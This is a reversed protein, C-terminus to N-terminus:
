SLKRRLLLVMGALSLLALSGPEPIASTGTVQINDFGIDEDGSNFSMTMRIDLLSGTGTIDKTYQTFTDTLATGDGVGDFDTDELPETNTAGQDEFALLNNYGGSDIQYEVLFGDSVDWDQNSGDDDEAFLGLFQLSSYGSISIGTFSMTMTTPGGSGTANAADLDMAAFFSSGQPSLYTSSIDSGDTRIFYDGSGDSFEPDSTTYLVTSDEFDEVMIVDARAIAVLGLLLSAILMKKM